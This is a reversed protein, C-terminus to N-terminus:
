GNEIEVDTFAPCNMIRLDGSGTPGRGRGRRAGVRGAIWTIPSRNGGFSTGGDWSVSILRAAFDLALSKETPIQRDPSQEELEV